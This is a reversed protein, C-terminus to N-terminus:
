LGKFVFSYDEFLKSCKFGARFHTETGRGEMKLAGRMTNGIAICNEESLEFGTSFVKKGHTKIPPTLIDMNQSHFGFGLFIVAEAQGMSHRVPAIITKEKVQESYTKIQSSLNLLEVAELQDGFPIPSQIGQWPLSGVTGYPHYIKITKVIEAVENESIKFVNILSKYFFQELCRDYNFVVFSVNEFIKDLNGHQANSILLQFLSGYWTPSLNAFDMRAEAKRPNVFMLSKAEAKLIAECIGLKGCLEIEQDGHHNEIFSDISSIQYIADAIKRGGYVFLNPDRGEEEACHLKIAEYIKPDGKIM